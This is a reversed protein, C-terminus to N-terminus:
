GVQQDFFVQLVVAVPRAGHQEGCPAGGIHAGAAIVDGLREGQHADFGCPVAGVAPDCAEFDQRLGDKAAGADIDGQADGAEEAVSERLQDGQDIAGRAGHLVQIFGGIQVGGGCAGFLRLGARTKPELGPAYPAPRCASISSRM